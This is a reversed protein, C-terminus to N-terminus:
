HMTQDLQSPSVKAGHDVGYYVQEPITCNSEHMSQKYYITFTLQPRMFNSVELPKLYIGQSFESAVLKLRQINEKNQLQSSVLLLLEDQRTKVQAAICKLPESKKRGKTPIPPQNNKCHGM